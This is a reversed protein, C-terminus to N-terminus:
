EFRCSGWALIIGGWIFSHSDDDIPSNSSGNTRYEGGYNNCQTETKNKVLNYEIESNYLGNHETFEYLNLVFPGPDDSALAVISDLNFESLCEGFTYLDNENTPGVYWITEGVISGGVKEECEQLLRQKGAESAKNSLGYGFVNINANGYKTKVFLKYTSSSFGSQSVAFIALVLLTRFTFRM